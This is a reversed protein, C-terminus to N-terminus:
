LHPYYIVWEVDRIYDCSSGVSEKEVNGIRDFNYSLRASSVGSIKIRNVSSRGLMFHRAVMTSAVMQNRVFGYEGTGYRAFRKMLQRVFM